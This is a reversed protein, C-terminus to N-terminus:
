VVSMGAKILSERTKSRGLEILQSALDFEFTGCTNRALEITIDPPYAALKARAITSQMADFAETAINYSGWGDVTSQPSTKLRGIFRKISLHIDSGENESESIRPMPRSKLKAIEDVSGALNVAITIDTKDNFTPAIPVPNLVGGDILYTDNHKVPTFFLPLSISARFADFLCGSNIWVEKENKVDAAIATYPIPLDEINQEGVLKKLSNIIKEGKVLGGKRFSIDLLSVIDVKDIACVWQEFEDLKGAAFIGGIVAGISCGSISKIEFGNRELERIVGIHAMGRAGGSGLVLSVSIKKHSSQM